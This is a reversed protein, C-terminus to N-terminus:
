EAPNTTPSEITAPPVREIIEIMEPLTTKEALNARKQQDEAPDGGYTQCEHLHRRAAELGSHWSRRLDFSYTLPNRTQLLARFVMSIEGQRCKVNKLTYNNFNSDVVITGEFPVLQAGIPLEHMEDVTRVVTVSSHDVRILLVPFNLDAITASRQWIEFYIGMVIAGAAVAIVTIAVIWKTARRNFASEGQKM